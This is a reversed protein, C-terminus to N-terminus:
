CIYKQTQSSNYLYIILCRYARFYLCKRYKYREFGMMITEGNEDDTGTLFATILKFILTDRISTVQVEEVNKEGGSMHM